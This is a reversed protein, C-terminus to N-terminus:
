FQEVNSVLWDRLKDALDENTFDAAVERWKNADHDWTFDREKSGDKSMAEADASTAFRITKLTCVNAVNNFRLTLEAGATTCVKEFIQGPTSETMVNSTFDKYQLAQRDLDESLALPSQQVSKDQVTM